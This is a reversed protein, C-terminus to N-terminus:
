IDQDEKGGELDEAVSRAIDLRVRQTTFRNGSSELLVVLIEASCTRFRVSVTSRSGRM